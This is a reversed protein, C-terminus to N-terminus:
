VPFKYNRKLLTDPKQLLLLLHAVSDQVTSLGIASYAKDNPLLDTRARVSPRDLRVLPPSRIGHIIHGITSEMAQQELTTM